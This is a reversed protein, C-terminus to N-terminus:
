QLKKNSAFLTKEQNNDYLPVPSQEDFEEEEYFDDEEDYDDLVKGNMPM